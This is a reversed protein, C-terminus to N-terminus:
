SKLPEKFTEAPLPAPNCAPDKPFMGEKETQRDTEKRQKERHRETDKEGSKQRQRETEREEGRRRDTQREHVSIFLFPLLSEKPARTPSPVVKQM